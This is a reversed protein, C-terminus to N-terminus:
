EYFNKKIILDNDISKMQQSIKENEVLTKEKDLNFDKIKTESKLIEDGFTNKRESLIQKQSNIIEQNLKETRSLSSKDM